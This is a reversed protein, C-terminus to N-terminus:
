SNKAKSVGDLLTTGLKVFEEWQERTMGVAGYPKAVGSSTDYAIIRVRDKEPSDSTGGGHGSFVIKSGGIDFDVPFGRFNKADKLFKEVDRRDREKQLDVITDDTGMVVEGLTELGSGVIVLASLRARASILFSKRGISFVKIKRYKLLV